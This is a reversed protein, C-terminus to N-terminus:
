ASISTNRALTLPFPGIVVDTSAVVDFPRETWTTCAVRPPVGENRM